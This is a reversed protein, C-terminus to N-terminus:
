ASVRETIFTDNLTGGKKISIKNGEGEAKKMAQHLSNWLQSQVELFEICGKVGQEVDKETKCNKEISLSANYAHNEEVGCLHDHFYQSIKYFELEDYFNKYPLFLSQYFDNIMYVAANEQAYSAGLVTLYNKHTYLKEAVKIFNRTEPLIYPSLSVDKLDIPDLNFVSQGHLNHSISLLRLHSNLGIGMGSEEYLNQGATALTEMDQNKAAAIVTNAVSIITQSTRYMYNDRYLRYQLPTVGTKTSNKLYDFFPSKIAQHNKLIEEYVKIM